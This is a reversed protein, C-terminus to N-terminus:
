IFLSVTKLVLYTLIFVLIFIFLEKFPKLLKNKYSKYKWVHNIKIIRGDKNKFEKSNFNKIKYIDVMGESLCKYFDAEDKFLPVKDVPNHNEDFFDYYRDYNNKYSEHIKEYKKGIAIILEEGTYLQKCKGTKEDKIIIM